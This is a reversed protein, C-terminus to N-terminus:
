EVYLIVILTNKKGKFRNIPLIKRDRIGGVKWSRVYFGSKLLMAWLLTDRIHLRVIKYTMIKIYIYIYIIFKFKFINLGEM